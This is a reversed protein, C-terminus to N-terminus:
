GAGYFSFMTLLLRSCGCALVWFQLNNACGSDVQIYIDFVRRGVSKWTQSDEFDFEAFQLKVTYNGNELGVGYYRLSSPSMRATQFLESDLSNQFQRSSYIIYSGNTADLFTGVNSIGWTPAGTVFYSAAGLNADDIEYMLNDSGSISRRSGCDV